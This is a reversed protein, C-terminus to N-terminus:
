HNLLSAICAKIMDQDMSHGAIKGVVTDDPAIALLGHTGLQHGELVVKNASAPLSRFTIQNEYQPAMENLWGRINNCLACDKLYYFNIQGKFAHKQATSDTPSTKETVAVEANVKNEDNSKDASTGCATILFLITLTALYKM